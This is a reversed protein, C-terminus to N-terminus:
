RRKRRKGAIAADLQTAEAELNEGAAIDYIAVTDVSLHRSHAMAGYLGFKKIAGTVFVRRIDHPTLKVGCQESRRALMKNVADRTMRRPVKREAAKRVKAGAIKERPRGELVGVFLPGHDPAGLRKRVKMWRALERLLDRSMPRPERADRGKGLVMVKNGVIHELDIGVVEYRRFGLGADFRLLTWDRVDIPKPSKRNALRELLAWIKDFAAKVHKYRERQEYPTRKQVKPPKADKVWPERKLLKALSRLARYRATIGTAKKGTQSTIWRQVIRNSEDAPLRLLTLVIAIPTGVFRDDAKEAWRAFHQLHGTYSRVTDPSKGGFWDALIHAHEPPVIPPAMISAPDRVAIATSSRAM